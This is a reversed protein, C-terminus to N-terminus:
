LIRHPLRLASCLTSAEELDGIAEGCMLRAITEGALPCSLLGRSGHGANIFLGSMCRVPVKTVLNTGPQYQSAEQKMAHFDPLAGVYPLRDITSTRFCVRASRVAGPDISLSPIWRRCSALIEETDSERPEEQPDDHRYHAGILHENCTSPTVYGGFCVVTRLERSRPSDAACITQGRIPELPLWSAAPILSSEYAGCIIVASTSLSSSTSEVRWSTEMRSIDTVHSNIDTTVLHAFPALLATVMEKPSIYGATPIYFSNETLSVGAIESGEAASVREIRSDGLIPASDNVLHALRKTTPLHLAGCRRFIRPDELTSLLGTTYEFGKSYVAETPSRKSSLYPTVLGFRNGSAKSVLASGAELIRVSLGRRALAHATCGGALGGGIIVADPTRLLSM